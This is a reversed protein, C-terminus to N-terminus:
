SWPSSSIRTVGGASSRNTVASSALAEGQSTLGKWIRGIRGEVEKRGSWGPGRAGGSTEAVCLDKIEMERM